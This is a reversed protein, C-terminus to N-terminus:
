KRTVPKESSFLKNRQNEQTKMFDVLKILDGKSSKDISKAKAIRIVAEDRQKQLVEKDAQLIQSKHNQLALEQYLGHVENESAQQITKISNKIKSLVASMAEKEQKILKEREEEMTKMAKIEDRIINLDLDSNKNLFDENISNEAQSSKKLMIVEEIVRLKDIFLKRNEEDKKNVLSVLRTLEKNLLQKEENINVNKQSSVMKLISIESRYQDLEKGHIDKLQKIMNSLRQLQEEQAIVHKNLGDNMVKLNKIENELSVKHVAMEDRILKVEKDMEEKLEENQVRLTMITEAYADDIIKKLMDANKEIIMKSNISKEIMKQMKVLFEALRTRENAVLTFEEDLAQIRKEQGANLIFVSNRLRESQKELEEKENKWSEKMSEVWEEKSNIEKRLLKLEEAELTEEYSLLQKRTAAQSTLIKIQGELSKITKQLAAQRTEWTKIEKLEKGAKINKLRDVRSQVQQIELNKQELLIHLKQTEQTYFEELKKRNEVLNHNEANLREIELKLKNNVDNLDFSDIGYKKKTEFIEELAQVSMIYNMLNKKAHDLDQELNMIKEKSMFIQEELKQNRIEALEKRLNQLEQTLATIEELQEKERKTAHEELTILTQAYNMQENMLMTQQKNIDSLLSQTSAITKTISRREGQKSSIYLERISKIQEEKEKLLELNIKLENRLTGAISIADKGEILSEQRKLLDQYKKIDETKQQTLQSFISEREEIRANLQFIESRLALLQSELATERTKCCEALKLNSKRLKDIEKRQIEDKEDAIAKMQEIKKMLQAKEENAQILKGKYFEEQKQMEEKIDKLETDILKQKDQLVEDFKFSEDFKRQKEKLWESEGETKQQTLMRIREEYENKLSEIESNKGNLEKNIRDFKGIIDEYNQQFDTERKRSDKRALELFNQIKGREEKLEKEKDEIKKNLLRIEKRLLDNEHNLTSEKDLSQQEIREIEKLLRNRISSESERGQSTKNVEDKFIKNEEKLVEIQRRCTRELSQYQSELEQRERAWNQQNTQILQQNKRLTEMLFDIDLKNETNVEDHESM